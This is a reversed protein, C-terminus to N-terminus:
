GMSGKATKENNYIPQYISMEIECLESETDQHYFFLFIYRAGYIHLITM